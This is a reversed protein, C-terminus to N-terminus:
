NKLGEFLPEFKITDFAKEDDVFAFCFLINYQNTQEQVQNVVQLNDITSYGARFRAQERSQHFDMTRLMRKLLINSCVKYMIPLLSIPRYKKVDSINGKKHILVILANKWAKPVQRHHLCISFLDTLVQIM